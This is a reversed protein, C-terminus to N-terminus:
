YKWFFYIAMGSGVTIVAARIIRHDVKQAYHAGAYGGLSAGAIMVVAQPWRVIGALIFTVVAVGNISSALLTKLGNM